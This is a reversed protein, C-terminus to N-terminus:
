DRVPDLRVYKPIGNEYKKNAYSGRSQYCFFLFFVKNNLIYRLQDFNNVRDCLQGFGEIQEDRFFLHVADARLCPYHWAREVKAAVQRGQYPCFITYILSVQFILAYFPIRVVSWIGEALVSTVDVITRKVLTIVAAGIGQDDLTDVTVDFVDRLTAILNLPIRVVNIVMNIVAGIAVFGTVTAFAAKMAVVYSPDAWFGTEGGKQLSNIEAIILPQDPHDRNVVYRGKPIYRKGLDSVTWSLGEMKLKETWKKEDYIIDKKFVIVNEDDAEARKLYFQRGWNQASCCPLCSGM